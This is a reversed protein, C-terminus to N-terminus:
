GFFSRARDVVIEPVEDAVFHGVGPLLEITLDEAHREAGDLGEPRLVHDDAGFLIKTPPRLHAKRYRGALLAPMDRLQFSRYYQVSARTREPERLRGLFVEREADSWIESGLWRFVPSAMGRVALQGLGPSAIVWQYWFRWMRLAAALSVETFPPYINLTLFREVREPERLAILFGVWGGWDHGLLLFREVGLEDLLALVDNALNEKQYGRPPADTWGLGRLDPCIVRYRAALPGILHRWEYWHQPWGHLMVLPEGEGAEAVHMRLGGADVFRHEVGEVHPMGAIEVASEVAM